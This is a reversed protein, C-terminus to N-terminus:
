PHFRIAPTMKADSKGRAGRRPVIPRHACGAHQYEAAGARDAGLRQVDDGGVGVAELDDPQGCAAAIGAQQGLLAGLCAHRIDGDGVVGRGGLDAVDGVGPRVGDGPEDLVGLGVHHEVREDARQPQLGVSAASAM